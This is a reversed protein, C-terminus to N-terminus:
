KKTEPKNWIILFTILITTQTGIHTNVMTNKKNSQKIKIKLETQSLIHAYKFWRLQSFLVMASRILSVM